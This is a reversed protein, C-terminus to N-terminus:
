FRNKELYQSALDEAADSGRHYSKVLEHALLVNDSIKRGKVFASQSPSIIGPLVQKKVASETGEWSLCDLIINSKTKRLFIPQSFPSSSTLLTSRENEARNTFYIPARTPVSIIYGKEVDINNRKM